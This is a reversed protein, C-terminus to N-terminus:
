KNGGLGGNQKMGSSNSTNASASMSEEGDEGSERSSDGASGVASLAQGVPRRRKVCETTVALEGNGIETAHHQFQFSPSTPCENKLNRDPGPGASTSPPVTFLFAGAYHFTLLGSLVM